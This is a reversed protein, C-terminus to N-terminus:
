SRKLWKVLNYPNECGNYKKHYEAHCHQCLVLGNGKNYALEPYQSKPFIHHAQNNENDKKGCKNCTYNDERRIKRSWNKLKMKSLQKANLPKTKTQYNNNITIHIDEIIIEKNKQQKELTEDTNIHLYENFVGQKINNVLRRITHKSIKSPYNLEKLKVGQTIQKHINEVDNLTFPLLYNNNKTIFFGNSTLTLNKYQETYNSM